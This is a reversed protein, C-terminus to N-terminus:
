EPKTKGMFRMNMLKNLLDFYLVLMLGFSILWLIVVNYWYTPYLKGFIPKKSAYFHNVGEEPLQYVLNENRLLEGETEVLKKIGNKNNLFEWLQENEHSTKFKFFAEEGGLQKKLAFTIEDKEVSYKQVMRNYYNRLVQIFARMQEVDVLSVKSLDDHKEGNWHVIEKEPLESFESYILSTKYVVEEQSKPEKLEKKLNNEIASIAAEIEPVWYNKMFNYHYLRSNVDYFNVEYANTTVQEVALAEYAWRSAMINGILPVGRQASFWPNLENYKVLLGSFLIQPIIIFPILIYITVVKKFSASINLGTVNAFCAASFLVMWYQFTMGEIGLIANGIIVYLFVQVSSITFQILVKSALYGGVSLNLFRERVRIKKDKIIEEASVSMGLFLAVVVSIFLYALVNGNDRFVYESTGGFENRYRLFGAIIVALVPAELLNVVLYQTNSIKSLVDRMVFVKFQKLLKPIAFEIKPIKSPAKPTSLGKSIQEKYRNRWDKPSKKRENTLDGYEDVVKAEIIDFVQEPNVNGCSLCDGNDSSLQGSADRFYSISDLPDGQYILYGGKDLILLKDFMKFIDSSPQHIVVFVIKGKLTLEKLLDMINESDRSSLGSTPEDVFLISPERILELAINLRKRQGGSITKELVSGVKLDSTESLGLSSLIELVRDKVERDHLNGFSLLANFYLNQFVTLDEILLDDQPVYGILGEVLPNNDHISIDNVCVKGASPTYNGNLVNILTSKGTGSGGMIGVMQGSSASFSMPYLGRDKKNFKYELEDTTFLVPTDIQENTYRALIDSHYIPSIRSSRISAGQRFLYVKGKRIQNGGIYLEQKELMRFVIVRSSKLHLFLLRSSLGTHAKIRHKTDDEPGYIFFEEDSEELKDTICIFKQLLKFEDPNVNFAEAIAALFELNQDSLINQEYIYEVLRILVLLKQQRTLTQNLETAIRLIKVANRATHKVVGDKKRKRFHHKQVYEDYLQLYEAVISPSLEEELFQRVTDKSKDNLGDVDAVIAFLQMLAKM